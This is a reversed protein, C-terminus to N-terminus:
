GFYVSKSECFKPFSFITRVSGLTEVRYNLRCFNLLHKKLSVPIPSGQPLRVRRQLTLPQRGLRYVFPGFRLKAHASNADGLAIICPM